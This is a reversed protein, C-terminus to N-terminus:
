NMKGHGENLYVPPLHDIFMRCYNLYKQLLVALSLGFGDSGVRFCVNCVFKTKLPSLVQVMVFSFMHIYTYLIEQCGELLSLFLLGMSALFQTESLNMLLGFPSSTDLCFWNNGFGLDYSIEVRVENIYNSISSKAVIWWVWLHSSVDFTQLMIHPFRFCLHLMRVPFPIISSDTAAHACFCLRCSFFISSLFFFFFYIFPYSCTAMQSQTDLKDQQEAQGEGFSMYLCSAMWVDLLWHQECKGQGSWGAM